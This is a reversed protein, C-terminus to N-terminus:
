IVEIEVETKEEGQTAVKRSMVRGSLTRWDDNPLLGSKVIWDQLYKCDYGDWDCPRVSYVIFRIEFRCLPEYWRAEERTTTSGLPLREDSKSQLPRLRAANNKSHDHKLVLKGFNPHNVLQETTWRSM